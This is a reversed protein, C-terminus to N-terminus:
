LEVIKTQKIQMYSLVLDPRFIAM